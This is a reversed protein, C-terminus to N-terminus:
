AFRQRCELHREGSNSGRMLMVRLAQCIKIVSRNRPLHEDHVHTAKGAGKSGGLILPRHSTSPVASQSTEQATHLAAYQVTMRSALADQGRLAM